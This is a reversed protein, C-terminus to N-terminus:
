QFARRLGTPDLLEEAYLALDNCLTTSFDVRGLPFVGVKRPFVQIDSGCM